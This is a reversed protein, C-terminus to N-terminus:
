LGSLFYFIQYFVGMLFLALLFYIIIKPLNMQYAPEMDGKRKAKLYIAIIIAIDIGMMVGGSLGIIEIFNDLGLYFLFLPVFCALFWALGKQVSFDYMMIKKMTLSITIYSTFTTLFGFCLALFIVGNDFILSLGTIADNTTQSGTMGTVLIIFTLYTFLAILIATAVVKKLDKPRDKLIEKVEPILALGGLSFLVPGYPLFFQNSEFNLLNTLDIHPLGKLTLLGLVVFFLILSFLEAKAIGKVGFYVLFAGLGFFLLTGDFGLNIGASEFISSIFGGGIILYALCAGYLGFGDSFLIVRKGWHGLYHGAYGALRCTKSTRLTIEGYMLSITVVVLGFFLFYFIMTALGVESAIYPLSFLGVGIITGTLTSLAYIFQKNM